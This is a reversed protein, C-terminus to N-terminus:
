AHDNKAKSLVEGCLQSSSLKQIHFINRSNRAGSSVLVFQQIIKWSSVPMGSDALSPGDSVTTPM